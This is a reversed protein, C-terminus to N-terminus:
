IGAALEGLRQLSEKAAAPHPRAPRALIHLAFYRWIGARQDTGALGLLWRGWDDSYKEEWANEERARAEEVEVWQALENLWPAVKDGPGFQAVLLLIAFSLFAGDPSNGPSTLFRWALLSAAARATSPGLELASSLLQALSDREGHYYEPADSAMRVLAVCAFLRIWHGRKDSPESWRTLELVEQLIGNRQGRKGERLMPWLMTLCEDAMSGYDAEAIERLMGEDFHDYFLPVLAREDPQLPALLQETTM